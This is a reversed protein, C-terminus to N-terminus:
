SGKEAQPLNVRRLLDQFRQDSRLADSEVPHGLSYLQPDRVEYAEELWDMAEDHDGAFLYLDAIDFPGWVGPGSVEGAAKWRAALLDALARQAGEYGAEALGREFAALLESDGAMFERQLALQEDRMGRLYFAAGLAIRAVPM